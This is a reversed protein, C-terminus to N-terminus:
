EGAARPSNIPFSGRNGGTLTMARSITKLTDIGWECLAINVAVCVLRCNEFSYDGRSDIRDISPYWPRRTAGDPKHAKDFAIGSVECRGGARDVLRWFDDITLRHDIGRERAREKSKYHIRWYESKKIRPATSPPVSANADVLVTNAQEESIKGLSRRYDKGDRMFYIYWSNKHKKLYAV